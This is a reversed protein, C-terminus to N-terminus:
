RCICCTPLHLVHEFYAAIVGVRRRHALRDAYLAVGIGAVISFLGFGAWAALWPALGAWLPAAGAAQAGALAKLPLLQALVRACLRLFSM